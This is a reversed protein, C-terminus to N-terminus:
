KMSLFMEIIAKWSTTSLKEEVISGDKEFINMKVSIRAQICIKINQRTHQASKKEKVTNISIQICIPKDPDKIIGEM